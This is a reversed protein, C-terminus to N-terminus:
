LSPDADLTQNLFTYTLREINLQLQTELFKIKETIYSEQRKNLLFVSSEGFKYLEIEGDLLKKYGVINKASIENITKLKEQLALNNELKIELERTKNALEFELADIKLEGLQVQAKEARFLIPTTLELGFTYNQLGNFGSPNLNSFLPNYKLKLKPKLKEAKLTQELKSLAIKQQYELLFPNNAIDNANPEPINWQPIQRQPVTNQALKLSGSNYWLYSEVGATAKLLYYSNKELENKAKQLYIEAEETDMATKEGGQYLVKTQKAYEMSLELNEQYINQMQYLAQWNLYELTASYILNNLQLKSQNLFQQAYLATQQIGISRENNRFGQLLNAEIGINWLVDSNTNDYPNLFYGRNYNYGAVFDVGYTTPIVLKSSVTSYYEKENFNKNAFDTYFLPDLLGKSVMNQLEANQENLKISQALPHFLLINQIYEQYSLEEKSQAKTQGLSFLFLLFISFTSKLSKMEEQNRAFRRSLLRSPFRQASAM